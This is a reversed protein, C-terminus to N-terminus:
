LSLLNIPLTNPAELDTLHISSLARFLTPVRPAWLTLHATTETSSISLLDIQEKAARVLQYTPGGENSYDTLSGAIAMSGKLLVPQTHM